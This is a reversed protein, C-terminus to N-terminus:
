GSASVASYFVPKGAFLINKQSLVFRHRPESRSPHESARRRRGGAAVVNASRWPPLRVGAFEIDVALLHM